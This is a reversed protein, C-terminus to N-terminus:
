QFVLGFGAISEADSCEEPLLHLDGSYGGMGSVTDGSRLQRGDQLVITSDADLRTGSPWVVAEFVVGQDGETVVGVCGSETVTLTLDALSASDLADTPHGVM